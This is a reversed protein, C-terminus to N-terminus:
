SELIEQLHGRARQAERETEAPTRGGVMEVLCPGSFGAARLVGLLRRHDVGGDGPTPFDAQGQPGRHDKVCLAVTQAAIEAVDDAPDLGEYHVNGGDYCARV